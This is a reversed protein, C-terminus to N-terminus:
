QRRTHKIFIGLRAYILSLVPTIWNLFCYPIFQLPMVGLMQSAYIANSNWPILVAGLTGGDELTRSLNEPALDNNEFMPRMITGTVISAFLMSSGIGNTIYTLAMTCAVIKFVSDGCKDVLPAILVKLVGTHELMGSICLALFVALVSSIMSNTGGRCLLTNLFESGTEIEYGSVMYRFIDPLRVGHCLVAIVLGSVSGVMLSMISPMKLILLLVVIAIPLLEVGSFGYIRNLSMVIEEIMGPASNPNATLKGIVSFLVASIAYAPVTTYLMHRIHRGVTTGAISAALVTSDSIPSMKDGFYAGSIIAGATMPAPVGMASGIGTLAVGITGLTGWSTGTAMSTASAMILASILFHNPSLLKLGLYIIYPITGSAIWTAIMTGIVLLILNPEFSQVAMKWAMEQLEGYRYGLKMLLPIAILWSLMFMIELPAEFLFMGLVITLFVAGVVFAAYSFKIERKDGEM